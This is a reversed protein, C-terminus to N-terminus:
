RVGEGKLTEAKPWRYLAPNHQSARSIQHVLGADMLTRRAQALRYRGMSVRENALGNAIFFTGDPGNEAKLVNYLALADPNSKALQRVLNLPVYAGHQGFRNRGELQMKWVSKSIRIVEADAMPEGFE